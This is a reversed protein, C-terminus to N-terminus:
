DSHIQLVLQSLQQIHVHKSCFVVIFVLVRARWGPLIVSVTLIPNTQDFGRIRLVRLNM